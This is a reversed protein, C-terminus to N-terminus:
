WDSRDERKPLRKNITRAWAEGDDTRDASHRPAIVDSCDKAWLHGEKWMATAIGRRCHSSVVLLDSLEGGEPDWDMHGIIQDSEIERALIRHMKDSHDIGKPNGKIFEFQIDDLNNM